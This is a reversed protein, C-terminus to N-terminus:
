DGLLPIRAEFDVGVVCLRATDRRAIANADEVVPSV